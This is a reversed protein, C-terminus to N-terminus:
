TPLFARYYLDDPITVNIFQSFSSEKLNKVVSSLGKEYKDADYLNYCSACMADIQNLTEPDANARNKELDTIMTHLLLQDPPFLSKEANSIYQAALQLKLGLTWSEIFPRVEEGELLVLTHISMEFSKLNCTGIKQQVWAVSLYAADTSESRVQLLAEISSRLNDAAKKPDAISCGYRLKEIIEETLLDRNYRKVDITQFNGDCVVYADKYILIDYSHCNTSMMILTPKDDQIRSLYNANSHASDATFACMSGIMQTLHPSLDTMKETCHGVKKILWRPSIMGERNYSVGGVETHGKIEFLHSCLKGLNM